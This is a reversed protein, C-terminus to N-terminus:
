TPLCSTFINHKNKIIRVKISSSVPEFCNIVSIVRNGAVGLMENKIRGPSFLKVKVIQNKKFPKDLKKTEMFNFNPSSMLNIDFKKEFEKLKDSFEEFLMEEVPNRGFKYHLASQIGLFITKDTNSELEKVFKILPIIQDDNIGKLWVPAINLNLKKSAYKIIELTKNLNYAKSDALNQAIQADMANLSFNIRTLGAEVLADIKSKTLLTGNSNVSIIKVEPIKKIDHILEVIKSYLFPEDQPNICVEIEDCGKGKVLKKFEQVLYDKEVIFDMRKNSKPGEDVSCFTCSLNCSTLPKLEVLNTNRDVIGFYVTGLLPIGSNAHIYLAKKGSNKHVLDKIYKSILFGFKTENGIFENKSVSCKGIKNLEKKPIIFQFLDYLTVILDEKLEFKLDEFQM